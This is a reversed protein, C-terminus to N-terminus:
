GVAFVLDTILQISIKARYEVLEFVGKKIVLVNQVDVSGDTIFVIVLKGVRLQKRKIFCRFSGASLAEEGLLYLEILLVNFM